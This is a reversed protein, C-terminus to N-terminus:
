KGVNDEEVHSNITNSGVNNSVYRKHSYNLVSVLLIGLDTVSANHVLAVKVICVWLALNTLSLAKGKHDTLSLATFIKSIM